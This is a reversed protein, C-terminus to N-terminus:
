KPPPLDIDFSNDGPKVEITHIGYALQPEKAMMPSSIRASNQGQLTVVSYTGDAGIKAKRPKEDKRQYNSPDFSIEGGNMPKGRVRVTGSVKAEATTTDVSAREDGCGWMTMLLTSALALTVCFRAYTMFRGKSFRVVTTTSISSITREIVYAVAM